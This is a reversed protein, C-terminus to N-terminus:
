RMFMCHIYLINPSHYDPNPSDVFMPAIMSSRMDRLDSVIHGGVLISLSLGSASGLLGTGDEFVKLTGM